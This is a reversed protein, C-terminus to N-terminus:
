PSAVAAAVASDVASVRSPVNSACSCAINLLVASTGGLSSSGELPTNVVALPQSNLMSSDIKLPLEVCLGNRMSCSNIAEIASIFVTYPGNGMM